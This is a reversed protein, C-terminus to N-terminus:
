SSEPASILASMSRPDPTSTRSTAVASLEAKRPDVEGMAGTRRRTRATRPPEHGRAPSSSCTTPSCGWGSGDRCGAPAEIAAAACVTVANSHASADKAAQAGGCLQARRARGRRERSARCSSTVFVATRRRASMPAPRSGATPLRWSRPPDFLVIHRDLAPAWLAREPKAVSPCRITLSSSRRLTPDWLKDADPLLVEVLSRQRYARRVM